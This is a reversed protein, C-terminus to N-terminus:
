IATLGHFGKANRIICVKRNKDLLVNEFWIRVDAVKKKHVALEEVNVPAFREAWPRLDPKLDGNGLKSIESSKTEYIVGDEAIRFSQSASPPKGHSPPVICKTTTPGLSSKRRHLVSSTTNQLGKPDALEECASDDEIIDDDEDEGAEESVLEKAGIERTLQVDPRQEQRAANFYTSIPRSLTSPPRKATPRSQQTHNTSSPHLSARPDEISKFASRKGSSKRRFPQKAVDSVGTATSNDESVRIGNIKNKHRQKSTVVADDDSSLLIPRKQRKAPPPAM